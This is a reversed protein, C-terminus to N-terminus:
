KKEIANNHRVLYVAAYNEFISNRADTCMARNAGFAINTGLM